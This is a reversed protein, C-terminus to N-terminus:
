EDSDERNGLKAINELFEKVVPHDKADLFFRSLAISVYPSMGAVNMAIQRIM